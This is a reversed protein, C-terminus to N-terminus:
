SYGENGGRGKCCADGRGLGAAVAATVRALASLPPLSSPLLSPTCTSPPFSHVHRAHEFSSGAGPAGACVRMCRGVWGGVGLLGGVWVCSAAAQVQVPQLSQGSARGLGNTHAHTHQWTHTHARRHARTRVHTPAVTHAIGSASLSPHGVRLSLPTGSASLSLPARRPSLSPHEVRHGVRVHAALILRAPTFPSAAPIPHLFHPCSPLLAPHGAAHIARPGPRPSHKPGPSLM